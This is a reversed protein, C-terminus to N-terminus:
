NVITLVMFRLIWSFEFQEKVVPGKKKDHSEGEHAFSATASYILACVAILKLTIHKM